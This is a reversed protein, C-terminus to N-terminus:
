KLKKQLNKITKFAVIQANEFKIQYELGNYNIDGGTWFGANDQPKVEIGLYECIMEELAWGKGSKKNERTQIEEVKALLDAETGLCIAGKKLLQEKHAKKLAMQLKEGGGNQSSARLITQFRPMIEEVDAVYLNHNLLFGIFYRDAGSFKRYYRIANGKTM